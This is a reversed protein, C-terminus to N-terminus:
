NWSNNTEKTDASSYCLQDFTNDSGNIYLRFDDIYYYSGIDSDTQYLIVNLTVGTTAANLTVEVTIQQWIDFSTPSNSKYGHWASSYYEEFYLYVDDLPTNADSPVYVWASFTYTKEAELGHMDTSLENDTLSVYAGYIYSTKTIKFSYLKLWGEAEGIYNYWFSKITHGISSDLEWTSYYIVPTTEDKIMPFSSYASGPNDILNGCNLANNSTVIGIYNNAYIALGCNNFINNNISSAQDHTKILYRYSTPNTIQNCDIFINQAININKNLDSDVCNWRQRYFYNFTINAQNLQYLQILDSDNDVFRNNTINLVSDYFYVGGIYMMKYIPARVRSFEITNNNISLFQFNTFKFVYSDQNSIRLNELYIRSTLSMEIAPSVEEAYRDIAFNSLRISKNDYMNTGVMYIKTINESTKIISSWGGCDITIGPIAMISSKLMFVGPLLRVTGGGYANCLYSIAANIFINDEIGDCYYNANNGSYTSSSIIAEQNEYDIKSQVYIPKYVGSSYYTENVYLKGINRYNINISHYFAYSETDFVPSVVDIYYQGKDSIYIYYWYGKVKGCLWDGDTIKYDQSKVVQKGKINIIGKGITIKYEKNLSLEFGSIFGPPLGTVASETKKEFLSDRAKQIEEFNRLNCGYIVSIFFLIFIIRFVLDGSKERILKKM